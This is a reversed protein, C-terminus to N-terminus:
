LTFMDGWYSGEFLVAALDIEGLGVSEGIEESLRGFQEFQIFILLASQPDAHGLFCLVQQLLLLSFNLLM